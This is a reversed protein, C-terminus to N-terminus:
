AALESLHEVRRTWAMPTVEYVNLANRAEATLELATDNYIMYSAPPSPRLPRVDTFAFAVSLVQDRDARNVARILREPRASSRPILFDMTHDFSSKGPLKLRTTFRVQNQLLFQEVDELFVSVVTERAMTFLDNVTLMAQILNHKKQSFDQARGRVTLEGDEGCRVGYGNLVTQFITKRRETTLEFGSQELDSLIYGDDTLVLEDGEPRIYIQLHDNHRDVFPTTIECVGNVSRVASKDRLWHLYDDLLAKCDLANM